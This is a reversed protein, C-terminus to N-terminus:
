LIQDHHYYLALMLRFHSIFCDFSECVIPKNALDDLALQDDTAINLITSYNVTAPQELSCEVKGTDGLSRNDFELKILANVTDSKQGKQLSCFHFVNCSTRCLYVAFCLTCLAM